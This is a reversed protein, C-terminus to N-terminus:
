GDGLDREELGTDWQVNCGTCFYHIAPLAEPV